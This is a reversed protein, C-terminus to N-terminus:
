NVTKVAPQIAFPSASPSDHSFDHSNESESALARAKERAGIANAIDKTDTIAYRTFMERTQWGGIGMITSEPVGVKRLERAASRRFDHLILGVYRLKESGCECPRKTTVTGCERCERHGLGAEITLNQWTKRFDRVPTNRDRSLVFDERSRGAIAQEILACITPTMTVERGKGNKTGGVDLRILGTTTNVQRVRLGLIEQKRWGYEFAIEVFLRLWPERVLKCLRDFDAQEIFGQRVNNETLHPFLPVIYNHKKAGLRMMTKLAALERNITAPKAEEERRHDIYTNLLDEGINGAPIEAFFPELHLRWRREVVDVSKNEKDRYSRVLLEYLEGILVQKRRHPAVPEGRDIAGLRRRLVQQAARYDTTGTAERVRKGNYSYYSIMWTSCGPQRYISGNGRKRANM